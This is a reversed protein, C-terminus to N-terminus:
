HEIEGFPNDETFVVFTDAEKLLEENDALPDIHILDYLESIIYNGDEDTMLGGVENEVAYALEDTTFKQELIDIAPIGTNFTENSYEFLECTLRYSYLTGLEYFIERNDTFKIQFLKQHIPLFILDGEMPRSISYPTGIVTKFRDISVALTIQSRVQMGFKSYITDQPANNFGSISEILMEITIPTDYVSQDDTFYIQDFNQLNRPIYIVDQGYIQIMEDVLSQVLGQESAYTTQNFYPNVTM